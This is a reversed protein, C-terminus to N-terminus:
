CGAKDEYVKTDSETLIGHDIALGLVSISHKVTMIMQRRALVGTCSICEAFYTKPESPTILEVPPQFV